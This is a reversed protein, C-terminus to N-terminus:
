SRAGQEFRAQRAATYAEILRPTNNVLDGIVGDNCHHTNDFIESLDIAGCKECEGWYSSDPTFADSPQPAFEIKWGDAPTLTKHIEKEHKELHEQIEELATYHSQLKYLLSDINDIGYPAAHNLKIVLDETENFADPKLVSLSFGGDHVKQLIALIHSPLKILKAGIAGPRDKIDPYTWLKAPLNIYSGIPYPNQLTPIEINGYFIHVCKQAYLALLRAKRIEEDTPKEGKIEVFCDQQPLWFDPLYPTGELSFGEKEYEYPIGLTKFFVAHRAELRSRFHYGDFKTQIPAFKFPNKM